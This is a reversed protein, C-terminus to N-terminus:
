LGASGCFLAEWAKVAAGAAHQPVGEPSPGALGRASGRGAM